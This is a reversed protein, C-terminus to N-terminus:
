ALWLCGYCSENAVANPGSGVGDATKRCIVAAGYDRGFMNYSIFIAFLAM